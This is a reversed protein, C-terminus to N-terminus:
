CSHPLSSLMLGPGLSYPVWPNLDSVWTPLSPDPSALHLFSTQSTLSLHLVCMESAEHSPEGTAPEPLHCDAQRPPGAAPVPLLCHHGAWGLASGGPCFRGHVPSRPQVQQPSLALAHNLTPPQSSTPVYAGVWARESKFGGLVRLISTGTLVDAGASWWYGEWPSIQDVQPGLETPLTLWM